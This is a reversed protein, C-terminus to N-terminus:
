RGTQAAPGSLCGFARFPVVVIVGGFPITHAPISVWVSVCVMANISSLPLGSPASVNVASGSPYSLSIPMSGPGSTTAATPTSPVLENPAARARLSAAAPYSTRSTSRGLRLTRRLSPLDSGMSATAAARLTM